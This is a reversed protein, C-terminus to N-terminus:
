ALRDEKKEETNSKEMGSEDTINAEIWRYDLTLSNKLKLIKKLNGGSSPQM